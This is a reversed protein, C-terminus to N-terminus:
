PLSSKKTGKTTFVGTSWTEVLEVNSFTREMLGMTEM